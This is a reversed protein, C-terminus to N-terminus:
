GVGAATLAHERCFEPAFRHGAPNHCGVAACAGEPKDEQVPPGMLDALQEPRLEVRQLGPNAVADGVLTLSTPACLEVTLKTVGLARLEAVFAGLDAM